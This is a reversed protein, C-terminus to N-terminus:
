VIPKWNNTNRLCAKELVYPNPDEDLYLWNGLDTNFIQINDQEILWSKTFGLNMWTGDLVISESWVDKNTVYFAVDKSNTHKIIKFKIDIM